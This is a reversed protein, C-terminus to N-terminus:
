YKTWLDCRKKVREAQMIRAEVENLVSRKEGQIADKDFKRARALGYIRGRFGDKKRDKKKERERM